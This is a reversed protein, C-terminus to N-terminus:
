VKDLLDRLMDDITSVFRTAAQAARQMESLRAMEEELSVGSLADREGAVVDVRAAELDRLGVARQADAGIAALARVGEGVFTRTGGGALPQDALQALALLGRNDGAPAGVAAGALLRPDAAVTPDVAMALAAGAVAGPAVFLDRGSVGDLGANARHVADVESAVDYALQDLDAAARVMADDRFAVEGGMAGGLRATVDDRHGGDVVDLRVLGGLAADPTAEFTAARIGDVVSVGGDITVRMMGDADIRAQAGTLEALQTAALDREDALVPDHSVALRQNAAAVQAALATARTAEDRLRTDAGSRGDVIAQAARRFAVALADAAGVAQTRQALDLPSSAAAALGAFLSAIADVVDGGSTPAIRAEADLLASALADAQGHGAAAARERLGLLASEARRPGSSAVGGVEPAGLLARLDVSERSYGATDVNAVNRGAVGAGSTFAGYAGAGLDLLGLLGSM